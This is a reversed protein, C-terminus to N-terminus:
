TSSLSAHPFLWLEGAALPLIPDPEAVESSSSKKTQVTAPLDVAGPPPPETEASTSLHSQTEASVAQPPVPDPKATPSM